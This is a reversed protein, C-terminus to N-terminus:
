RLCWMRFVTNSVVPSRTAAVMQEFDGAQRRAVTLQFDRSCAWCVGWTEAGALENPSMVMSHVGSTASCGPCSYARMEFM